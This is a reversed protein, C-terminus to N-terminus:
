KGFIKDSERSLVRNINGIILSIDNLEITGHVISIHTIHFNTSGSNKIVRLGFTINEVIAEIKVENERSSNLVEMSAVSYGLVDMTSTILTGIIKSMHHKSQFRFFKKLAHIFKTFMSSSDRELIYECGRM